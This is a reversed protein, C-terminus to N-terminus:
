RAGKASKFGATAINPRGPSAPAIQSQRPFQTDPKTKPAKGAKAHPTPHVRKM